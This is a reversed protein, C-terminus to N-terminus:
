KLHSSIRILGNSFLEYDGISLINQPLFKTLRLTLEIIVSNNFAHTQLYLFIIIINAINRLHVLYFKLKM